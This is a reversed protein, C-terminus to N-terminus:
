SRRDGRATDAPQRARATAALRARGPPRGHRLGERAARRSASRGARRKGGPAPRPGQRQSNAMARPSPRGPCASRSHGSRPRDAPGRHHGPRSVRTAPPPHAGPRTTGCRGFAASEPRTGCRSQGHRFAGPGPRAARVTCTLDKHDNPLDFVAGVLISPRGRPHRPGRRRTAVWSAPIGPPSRTWPGSGAPEPQPRRPHGQRGRGRGPNLQKTLGTRARQKTRVFFLTGGRAPGPSRRRSRCRTRRPAPGLVRFARRTGSIQGSSTWRTALAPDSIYSTWWARRGGRDFPRPLLVDAQGCPLAYQDLIRTSRPGHLGPRGM